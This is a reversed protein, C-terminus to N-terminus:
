IGNGMLFYVQAEQLLPQNWTHPLFIVLHAQFSQNDWFAHLRKLAVPSTDSPSGNASDSIVSCWFSYHHHHMMVYNVLVFM